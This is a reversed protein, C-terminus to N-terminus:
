GRRDLERPLGGDRRDRSKSQIGEARAPGRAIPCCRNQRQICQLFAPREGAAVALHYRELPVQERLQPARVLGPLHQICQLGNRALPINRGIRRREHMRPEALPIRGQLAKLAGIFCAVDM